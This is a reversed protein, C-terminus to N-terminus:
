ASHLCYLITEWTCSESRVGNRLVSDVVMGTGNKQRAVFDLVVRDAPKEIVIELGAVAKVDNSTDNIELTISYKRVSAPGYRLLNEQAGATV